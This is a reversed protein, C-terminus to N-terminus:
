TNLTEEIISFLKSRDIPKLLYGQPKLSMAKIIKERETVGTLFVVPLDKTEKNARLKELVAAGNELPMEYDLLILDTTKNELFKMAVKGNIATAIDYSNHLQEKIMKLMMPDDDVVLIHRRRQPEEEQKVPEPEAPASLAAQIEAMFADEKAKQRKGALFSNIREEIGVTSIPRTIVLDAVNNTSRLFEGCDEESGIIVVPINEKTLKTKVTSIRTIHDSTEQNLCYVFIDPKFYRVHSVIDDYRISTTLSEFNDVMQSFFDDIVTKNRGTLLVKYTM